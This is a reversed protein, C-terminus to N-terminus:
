NETVAYRTQPGTLKHSYLSIQKGEQIILPGLQYNIADIHTDFRKNFDPYALLKDHAFAQKIDDFARKEVETWKFKVKNSTLATLPHLLYSLRSWMDKYYNVIGIFSCVEKTNNPPTMNVM